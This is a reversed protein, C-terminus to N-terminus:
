LLKKIEDMYEELDPTKLCEYNIVLEDDGYTRPQKGNVHVPYAWHSTTRREKFYKERKKQMAATLGKKPLFSVYQVIREECTDINGYVNQHFVRSDWLVLSGAKVHLDRKLNEISNLYEPDIKEWNKAHTLGKEAMYKEHLLHSGEYVRLTREKNDTFSVFGQYCKLGKERPAQDTHTWCTTKKRLDAKMWCSGDFSVALDDTKWINKFPAQVSARTRVFWAHKQHGVEFHKFIGHPSVKEHLKKIQVDSNLWKYFMELAHKIEDQSLVNEIVVYGKSELEKAYFCEDTKIKDDTKTINTKNAKRKLLMKKIKSEM